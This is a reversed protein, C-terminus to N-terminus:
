RKKGVANFTVIPAGATFATMRQGGNKDGLTWSTSALGNADTTALNPSASGGDLASWAVFVGAVPRGAADVARVVLPQPLVSSQLGQQENGSVIELKVPLGPLTPAPARVAVTATGPIGESVATITATGAAVARVEGDTVTAVSPASSSWTVARGGLPNGAADATAATLQTREGVVLEVVNPV